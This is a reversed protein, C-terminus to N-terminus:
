KKSHKPFEIRLQMPRRLGVRIVGRVSARARKLEVTLTLDQDRQDERPMSFNLTEKIDGIRNIEAEFTFLKEIQQDNQRLDPRRYLRKSPIDREFSITREPPQHINLGLSPPDPTLPQHKQLSHPSTTKLLMLGKDFGGRRKEKEERENEVDALSVDLANCLSRIVEQVDAIEGLLEEKSNADLAEFAEEVLKQRLASILADGVLKVTKVHEGRRAIITPIKDRVIKNYEAEEVDAGFLDSCEVRAGNRQLVYYVHALLGGSLEIVFKRLAALRGLEEAFERNRILEVEHPEVIVREIHKGTRLDEKLQLWDDVVRIRFDKAGSRKRRPAARPTGAKHHFWPLVKHTTAKSHNDIFWMVSVGHEERDAIQRTTLAIDFIWNKERISQGWDFPPKSQYPIWNGDQDPAIFTGKYRLRKRFKFKHKPPIQSSDAEITDVEFTDHSYWYLGEPIGWLSEIRVIRNGPEAWAWASAVSPIFHHALLCIESDQLESGFINDKFQGLLWKKAEAQSRLEDSRPLMETKDHPISTGDTRIILPRRTLEALDRELDSPITGKLLSRMMEANDLVYFVPMNYGIGQYLKANRLKGYLEFDESNAPRFIRLSSIKLDPIKDPVLSRPDHGMKSVATDAQVIWVYDGDWVWEFQARTLLLLTAWKAVHKLRRSIDLASTCNLNLDTLDTGDRWPRYAVSIMYGPKGAKPEFEAIWDRKERSLHRTNSLQGMEKPNIYKQVIWHVNGGFDAPLSSILEQLTKLVQDTQCSRSKLEGRSLMTESTGSSRVIVDSGASMGFRSCCDNIWALITGEPTKQLCSESIVFFSPVWIPPISALGYAKHGFHETTIEDISIETPGTEKVAIIPNLPFLQHKRSIKRSSSPDYDRTLNPTKRSADKEKTM